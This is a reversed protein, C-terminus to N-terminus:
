PAVERCYRLLAFLGNTRPVDDPVLKWSEREYFRRARSQPELVDLGMNQRGAERVQEVTNELLRSAVGKGWDDRLVYLMHLFPIHGPEKPEVEVQAVGILCGDKEAVFVAHNALNVAARWDYAARSSLQQEIAPESLLGEYGARWSRLYVSQIEEVDDPSAKRIIM